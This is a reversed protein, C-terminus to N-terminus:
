GCIVNQKGRESVKALFWNIRSFRKLRSCSGLCTNEDTWKKRKRKFICCTKYWKLHFHTYLHSHLLDKYFTHIWGQLSFFSKVFFYNRTRECFERKEIENGKWEIRWGQFTFWHIFCAKELPPYETPNIWLRTWWGCTWRGEKQMGISSPNM